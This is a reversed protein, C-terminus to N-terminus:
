LETVTSFGESYKVVEGYCILPYLHVTVYSLSRKILGDKFIM